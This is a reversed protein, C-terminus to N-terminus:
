GKKRDVGLDGSIEGRDDVKLIMPATEREGAM